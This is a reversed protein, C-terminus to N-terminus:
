ASFMERLEDDVSDRLRCLARYVLSGVMLGALTAVGFFFENM